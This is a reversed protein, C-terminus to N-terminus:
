NNQTFNTRHNIIETDRLEIEDVVFVANSITQLVIQEVYCNDMFDFLYFIDENMVSSAQVFESSYEMITVNDSANLKM